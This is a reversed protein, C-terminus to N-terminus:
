GRQEGALRALAELVAYERRLVGRRGGLYRAADGGHVLVPLGAPGPASRENYEALLAAVAAEVQTRAGHLMNAATGGNRELEAAGPTLEPLTSLGGLAALILREGALIAGGVFLPGDRQEVLDVTVATGCGVVACPAGLRRVAEFAALVRDDGLGLGYDVALPCRERGRILTLGREAALKALAATLEPRTSSYWVAEVTPRAELLTAPDKAIRATSRAKVRGRGGTTLPATKVRSNGIDLLLKVM